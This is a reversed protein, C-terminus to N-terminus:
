RPFAPSICKKTEFRYHYQATDDPIIELIEYDNLEVVASNPLKECRSRTDAELNFAFQAILQRVKAKYSDRIEAYYMEDTVTNDVKKTNIDSIDPEESTVNKIEPGTDAKAKTSPTNKVEVALTKELKEEFNDLLMLANYLLIASLIFRILMTIFRYHAHRTLRWGTIGLPRLMLLTVFYFPVIIQAILLGIASIVVFWAPLFLLIAFNHTYTFHSAPVGVIENVISGSMALAFNAIIAYFLLLLAKGALSHWVRTFLPWFELTLAITTIIAVLGLSENAFLVIIALLYFRQPISCNRWVRKIPSFLSMAKIALRKLMNDTTLQPM